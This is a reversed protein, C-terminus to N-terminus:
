KFFSRVAKVVTEIQEDTIGPFMPLSIIEKAITETVPFDGEKYGLHAYANQLHLPVPYHLGSGINRDKLYTGLADRDAVRIVYLHYVAEAWDPVFPVRVRPIQALSQNYALACARRQENWTSLHKLKIRLAGAQIADLRGNYGEIEHYYKRAQGHDRLMRVKQAIEENDTTVAGGEGLAGLNKGPYFSFAAVDSMSGAHEWRHHERSFYRAGHAQCADEIIALNYRAALTCLADMDATQGYLHVPIIARVPKQTVDHRTVRAGADFTCENDLFQALVDIDINYTDKKIDVFLPLAGTQTIAETTAIFTHPTTIVMDDRMIGCALLAFRLADTGSNVGVCHATDCFAAFDAEFGSVHEGGIFRGTQLAQEFIATLEKHLPQHMGPIDLFPVADSM